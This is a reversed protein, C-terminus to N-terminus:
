LRSSSEVKTESTVQETGRRRSMKFNKRNKIKKWGGTENESEEASILGLEKKAKRIAM